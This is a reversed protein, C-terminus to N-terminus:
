RRDRSRHQTAQIGRCQRRDNGIVRHQSFHAEIGMLPRGQGRNWRPGRIPSGPAAAGGRVRVGSIHECRRYSPRDEGRPETRSHFSAAM